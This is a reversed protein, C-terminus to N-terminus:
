RTLHQFFNAMPNQEREYLMGMVFSCMALENPHCCLKSVAAITELPHEQKEMGEKIRGTFEKYREPTVGLMEWTGKGIDALLHVEVGITPLVVKKKFPNKM